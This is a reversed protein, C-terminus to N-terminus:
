FKRSHELVNEFFVCSSQQWGLVFQFGKIVLLIKRESEYKKIFDVCEDFTDLTRLFEDLNKLEEAGNNTCFWAVIFDDHNQRDNLRTSSLYFHDM